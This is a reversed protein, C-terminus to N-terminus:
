LEFDIDMYVRYDQEDECGPVSPLPTIRHLEVKQKPITLAHLETLLRTEVGNETSVRLRTKVKQINLRVERGGVFVQTIVNRVNGHDKTL